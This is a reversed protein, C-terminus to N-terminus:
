RAALGFEGNHYIGIGAAIFCLHGPGPTRGGIKFASTTM